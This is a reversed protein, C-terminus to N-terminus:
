KNTGFNPNKLDRSLLCPPFDFLSNYNKYIDIVRERSLLTKCYIKSGM